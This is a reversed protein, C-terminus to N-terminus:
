LLLIVLVQFQLFHLPLTPLSLYIHRQPKRPQQSAPLFVTLHRLHLLFFGTQLLLRNCIVEKTQGIRLGQVEWVRETLLLVVLELPFTLAMEPSHVLVLTQLWLREEEEASSFREM